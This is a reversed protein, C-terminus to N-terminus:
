VRKVQFTHPEILFRGGTRTKVWVGGSSPDFKIDGLDDSLGSALEPRTRQLKKQTVLLKLTSARLAYLNLHRDLTRVQFWILDQAIGLIEDPWVTVRSRQALQRGTAADRARLRHVVMLLSSGRELTVLLDGGQDRHVRFRNQIKGKGFPINVITAVLMGLPPLVFIAMALVLPESNTSIMWASAGLSAAFILAWWYHQLPYRAPAMESVM